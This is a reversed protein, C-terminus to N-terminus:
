RQQALFHYFHYFHWDVKFNEPDRRYTCWEECEDHEGYMHPVLQALRKKLGLVNGQMQAIAYSFLTIVYNITKSNQLPKHTKRLNYLANAINKKTHNKDSKKKLTPNKQRLKAVTSSDNDMVITEVSISKAALKDMMEAAMDPEMAKSSGSWNKHCEHSKPTTNNRAAYECVNCVRSRVAFDICKGSEEGIFVAHGTNSNYNRGTGRKSWGGDFCVTIQPESGACQEQKLRIEEQLSQDCSDRATEIIASSVERERAALTKHHIPPINLSSLFTNVHTGGM